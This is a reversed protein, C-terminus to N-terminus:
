GTSLGGAEDEVERDLVADGLGDDGSGLLCGSTVTVGAEGVEVGDGRELSLDVLPSNAFVSEISEESEGLGGTFRM